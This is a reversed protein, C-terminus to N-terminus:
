HSACPVCGACERSTGPFDGGRRAPKPFRFSWSTGSGSPPHRPFAWVPSPRCLMLQPADTVTKKRIQIELTGSAFLKGRQLLAGLGDNQLGLYILLMRVNFKATTRCESGSVSCFCIFGADVTVCSKAWALAKADVPVARALLRRGTTCGCRVWWGGLWMGRLAANAAALRRAHRECGGKQLVCSNM